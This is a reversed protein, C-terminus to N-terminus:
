VALVMSCCCARLTASTSTALSVETRMTPPRPSMTSVKVMRPKGTFLASMARLPRYPTSGNQRTGISNASRTSSSLPGFARSLPMDGPPLTPPLTLTTGLRAASSGNVRTLTSQLSSEWTPM